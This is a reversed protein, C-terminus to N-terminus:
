FKGCVLRHYPKAVMNSSMPLFSLIFLIILIANMQIFFVYLPSIVSPINDKKIGISGVNIRSPNFAIAGKRLVYYNSVNDSWM